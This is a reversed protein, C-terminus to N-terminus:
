FFNSLFEKSYFEQNKWYNTHKMTDNMFNEFLIISDIQQNTESNPKPTTVPVIRGTNPKPTHSVDTAEDNMLKGVVELKLATLELVGELIKKAIMHARPLFDPYNALEEYKANTLDDRFETLNEICHDLSKGTQNRNIYFLTEASNM